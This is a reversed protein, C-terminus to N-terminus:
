DHPGQLEVQDGNIRARYSVQRSTAPGHVVSGDELRFVSGHWPCEITGDDLRGEALPGGAHSCTNKLAHVVDGRRVLLVATSGFTARTPMGEPLDAAPLVPAFAAARKGRSFANVNVSYGHKYVVHGGIYAGVSIIAYGVLLGWFAVDHKGNLRAMTSFAFGGVGVINLVGHLGAVDRTPSDPATDKFDTLGTLISGAGALWSLGVVWTTATELGEVGFLVRLLDLLLAATAAGVVVDVLVAHLSHGLWVGNLLDALFRGPAGLAGFIARMVGAIGNSLGRLPRATRELM